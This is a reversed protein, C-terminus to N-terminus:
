AIAASPADPRGLRPGSGELRRRDLARRGACPLDKPSVAAVAPM